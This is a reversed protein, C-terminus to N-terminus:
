SISKMPLQEERFSSQAREERWCLGFGAPLPTVVRGHRIIGEESM